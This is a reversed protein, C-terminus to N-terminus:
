PVARVEREQLACGFTPASSTLSQTGNGRAVAALIQDFSPARGEHGRASTIGGTFLLTGTAGYVVVSGSTKAVFRNAERADRDIVVKAGPIKAAREAVDGEEFGAETGEPRVLVVQVAARPGLADALRALEAMSAKTCPCHPHAFMIVSPRDAALQLSSTRPWTAPARPSGNDTTKYSWVALMAATVGVFWLGCGVWWAAATKM